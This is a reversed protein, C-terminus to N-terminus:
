PAPPHINPATRLYEWLAHLTNPGNGGFYDALASNGEEDFYLPMKTTPDFSQPNRVWRIFYDRHLRESAHALNVGPAEFVTSTAFPGIAHCTVCAFGTSASVLKRGVEAAVPDLPAEAASHPPLGDLAAFGAALGSAYAPFAPMRSTLWPRPKYGVAGSLLRTMWEPRLKEGSRALPPLGTGAEHCAQCRLEQSWRETFDSAVHRGLSEEGVNLFLRLATVEEPSLHFRPSGNEPQSSSLCGSRKETGALKRFAPATHQSESRGPSQPNPHCQFCGRDRALQEGRQLSPEDPAPNTPTGAPFQTLLFAALQSAEERNLQFNPMRSWPANREPIQLFETLADPGIFKEGVRNLAIADSPAPQGPVGHCSKCLLMEFLERGVAPSAAVVPAAPAAPATLSALGIRVTPSHWETNQVMSAMAPYRHMGRSSTSWTEAPM